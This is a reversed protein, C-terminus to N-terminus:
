KLNEQDLVMSMNCLVATLHEKFSEPDNEIPQLMKRIHRFAAWVLSHKDLPKKMNGKPYKHKNATFREAMLDLIQLNIESYDLKGDTEKVGEKSKVKFDWIKKLNEGSSDLYNSAKMMNPITYNPEELTVLLTDTGNHGLPFVVEKKINNLTEVQESKIKSQYGFGTIIDDFLFNTEVRGGNQRQHQEVEKLLKETKNLEKKPSFYHVNLGKVSVTTNNDVLERIEDITKSENNFFYKFGSGKFEM